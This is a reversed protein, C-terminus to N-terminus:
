EWVPGGEAGVLCGEQTRELSVDSGCGVAAAAECKAGESAAEEQVAEERRPGGQEM